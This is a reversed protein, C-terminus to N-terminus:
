KLNFTIKNHKTSQIDRTIPSIVKDATCGQQYVRHLLIPGTQLTHHGLTDAKLDYLDSGFKWGSRPFNISMYSKTEKDIFQAHLIYGMTESLVSRAYFM